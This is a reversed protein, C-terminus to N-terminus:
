KNYQKEFQNWIAIFLAAIMPGVIFGILGLWVVGGLNSLLAVTPHLGSKDGMIRPRIFSQIINSGITGLIILSLGNYLDGSLIMIAGLPIYIVISGIIPIISIVAVLVTWFLVSQVGLILFLVLGAVGEIIGIVVTGALTADSMRQIEKILADKSQSDLPIFKLVSDLLMKGDVLFYYFLSVIIIAHFILNSVGVFANQLLELVM